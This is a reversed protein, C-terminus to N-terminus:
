LVKRNDCEQIDVEPLSDLKLLSHSAVYANYKRILESRLSNIVGDYEEETIEERSRKMSLTPFDIFDKKDPIFPYPEKLRLNSLIEEVTFAKSLYTGTIYGVTKKFYAPNCKCLKWLKVLTNGTIGLKDLEELNMINADFYNAADIMGYIVNELTNAMLDKKFAYETDEVDELFHRLIEEYTHEDQEWDIVSM